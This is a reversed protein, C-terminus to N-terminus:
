PEYFLIIDTDLETIKAQSWDPKVDKLTQTVVPRFVQGSGALKLLQVIRLQHSQCHTWPAYPQYM